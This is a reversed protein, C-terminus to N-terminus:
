CWDQKTPFLKGISYGFTIHHEKRSRVKSRNNLPLGEFRNLPRWWHYTFKLSKLSKLSLQFKWEFDGTKYHSYGLCKQWATFFSILFFNDWITQKERSIETRRSHQLPGKMKYVEGMWESLLFVLIQKENKKTEKKIQNYQNNWDLMKWSDVLILM